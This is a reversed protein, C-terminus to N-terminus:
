AKYLEKLIPYSKLEPFGPIHLRYYELIVDLCRDRENRTMVCLHMTPYDLRMLLGIKAADEPMLFHIHSPVNECFCGNLMDFYDGEHYDETLPLFGVFRSLRIMFVLHFNAFKDQVGDLWRLSNEVYKYLLVNDQEDRTAYLLFEAIFLGITMKYPNLLLSPLPELLRVDRIRQLSTQQRMDFDVELLTLPQFMNRRIKAKGSKPIRVMFAMRGCQESLMDVVLSADGYKVTRLVIGNTKIMM